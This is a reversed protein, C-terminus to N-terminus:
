PERSRAAGSCRRPSRRAQRAARRAAARPRLHRARLHERRSRSREVDLELGRPDIGRARDRLAVRRQRALLRRLEEDDLAALAGITEIGAAVCVRRPRRGSERYGGCTSLRSSSAEKGAVVVIGGPKRLDSAVKSRGQLRSASRARSPRAARVATQVAEAIRASWSTAPAVEGLDLYGEDIGTQEVTPVVGRVTESM